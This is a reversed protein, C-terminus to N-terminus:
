RAALVESLVRHSRVTGFGPIHLRYFELLKDLLLSRETSSLAVKEAQMIERLKACLEPSMVHRHEPLKMTFSGERLDFFYEGQPMSGPYFGLYQTLEMMFRFHFCMDAPATDLSILRSELFNYLLANPEEEKIAAHMVELLFLMIAGKRMDSRLSGYVHHLSCEKVFALGRSERHYVEMSLINGPQFLVARKSKGARAGKVIYSQLGFVSTYTKTILSTESYKIASLVIGRTKALM